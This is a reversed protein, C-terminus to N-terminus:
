ASIPAIATHHEIAQNVLLYGVALFYVGSVLCGGFTALPISFIWTVPLGIAVAKPVREGRHLSIGLVLSGGLWALNALGAIAPFIALDHQNIISTLCGIALLVVGGAAAWAAKDALASRGYRALAVFAPVMAVLALSVFALTLNGALGVVRSGAHRQSHVVQVVGDAALFSGAVMASRGAMLSSISNLKQM